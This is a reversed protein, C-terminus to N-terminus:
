GCQKFRSARCRSAMIRARAIQQPKLLAAAAKLNLAAEPNKAALAIEFWMYSRVYDGGDGGPKGLYYYMLGLNNQAQADGQVAALRYWRAAERYSQGVGLGRRYLDGLKTEADAKGHEALPRILQAARAYDHRQYAAKAESMAAGAAAAGQALTLAMAILARALVTNM